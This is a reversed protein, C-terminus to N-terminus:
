QPKEEPSPETAAPVQGPIAGGPQLQALRKSLRDNSVSLMSLVQESQRLRAELRQKEVSLAQFHNIIGDLQQEPTTPTGPPLPLVLQQAVLEQYRVSVLAALTPGAPIPVTDATVLAVSMLCIASFLLFRPM